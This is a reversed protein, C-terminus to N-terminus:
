FGLSERIIVVQMDAGTPKEWLVSLARCIRQPHSCDHCGEGTAACPTSLGLRKTNKPAAVNRARFVAEDLNACVKNEGLVFYVRRKGYLYASVRNATGDINVIQGDASIANVSTLYIPCAAAEARLESVTKKEPVRWHWVPEAVPLLREYLGLEALTESGGFGVREGVLERVLFDAAQERTDFLHVGYGKRLLAESLASLM